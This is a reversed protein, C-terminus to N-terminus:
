FFIFSGKKKFKVHVQSSVIRGAGFCRVHLANMRGCSPAVNTFVSEEVVRPQVPGGLDTDAKMHAALVAYFSYASM